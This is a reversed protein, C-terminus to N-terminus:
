KVTIHKANCDQEPAGTNKSVQGKSILDLRDHNHIEVRPALHDLNYTRRSDVTTYRDPFEITAYTCNRYEMAMKNDVGRWSKGATLIM